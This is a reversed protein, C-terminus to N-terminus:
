RRREIEALVADVTLNSPGEGARAALVDSLVQRLAFAFPIGAAVARAKLDRPLYTTVNVGRAAM